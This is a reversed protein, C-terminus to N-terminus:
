PRPKDTDNTESTKGTLVVAYITEDFDDDVPALDVSKTEENASSVDM